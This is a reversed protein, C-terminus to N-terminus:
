PVRCAIVTILQILDECLSFQGGAEMRNRNNLIKRELDSWTRHLTIPQVLVASLCCGPTVNQYAGMKWYVYFADM